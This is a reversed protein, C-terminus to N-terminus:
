IVEWLGAKSNYQKSGEYWKMNMISGPNKILNLNRTFRKHKFFEHTFKSLNSPVNDQMFICKMKFSCSHPKYWAFFTKDIFNNASNLKIRENVKFPGIIMQNVIGAQIMANGDSKRRKAVFVDSNSLIWGKAWGDPEDFTMQSEEM